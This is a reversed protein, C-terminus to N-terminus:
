KYYINNLHVISELGKSPVLQMFFIIKVKGLKGCADYAREWWNLYYIYNRSIIIIIMVMMMMVDHFSSIVYTSKM